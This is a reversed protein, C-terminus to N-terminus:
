LVGHAEGICDRIVCLASDIQAFGVGFTFPLNEFGGSMALAKMMGPDKGRLATLLVLRVQLANATAARNPNKNSAFRVIAESAYDIDAFRHHSYKSAGIQPEISEKTKLCLAIHGVTHRQHQIAGELSKPKMAQLRVDLRGIDRRASQHFAQAKAFFAKRWAVQHDVARPSVMIAPGHEAVFPGLM